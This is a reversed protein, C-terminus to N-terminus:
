EDTWVPGRQAKYRIKSVKPEVGEELEVILGGIHSLSDAAVKKVYATGIQWCGNTIVRVPCADGSDNFRHYHARIALHPPPDGDKVHHLLIDHAYLNAASGETHARMGTRGHHTIDFRTGAVEMRLHWWSATGTEPDGVVPLGDDRWRRALAEEGSNSKGNHAETGRVVFIKDPELALPADMCARLVASQAEPHRSLIQATGHHDGDFLDGNFVVYLEDDGRVKAVRAWYDHWNQWLWLQVKSAQYAGGDDLQVVPPCVATSGGAHVDNVVAVVKRKSKRRGAM